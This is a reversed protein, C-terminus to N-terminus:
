RILRKLIWLATDYVANASINASFDKWFNGEKRVLEALEDLKRNQNLADEKISLSSLDIGEEKLIKSLLYARALNM